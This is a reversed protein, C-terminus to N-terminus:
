KGNNMEPFIRMAEKSVICCTGIASFIFVILETTTLSTNVVKNFFWGFGFITFVGMITFFLEKLKENM